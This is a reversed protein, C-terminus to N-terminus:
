NEKLLDTLEKAVTKFQDPYLRRLSDFLRKAEATKGENVLLRFKDTDAQFQRELILPM